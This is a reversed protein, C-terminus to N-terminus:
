EILNDIVRRYESDSTLTKATSMYMKRIEPDKIQESKSVLMLVSAKETNSVIKSSSELVKYATYKNFEPNNVVLRLIRGHETSSSFKNVAAFYADVFVDDDYPMNKSATSLVSGMETNSTLRGTEILLLTWSDTSLDFERITYRLVSGAETNSTMSGIALFYADAIRPNNLDLKHISRLVSGM